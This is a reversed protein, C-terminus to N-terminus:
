RSRAMLYTNGLIMMGQMDLSRSVFVYCLLFYFFLWIGNTHFLIVIYSSQHLSSFCKVKPTDGAIGFYDAVPRGVDENDMEVYVFILQFCVPFSTCLYLM